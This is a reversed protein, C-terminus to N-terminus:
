TSAVAGAFQPLSEGGSIRLRTWGAMTTTADHYGAASVQYAVAGTFKGRPYCFSYIPHGLLTELYRKSDVVEARVGGPSTRALDAHNV